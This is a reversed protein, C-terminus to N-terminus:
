APRSPLTVSRLSLTGPARAPSASVVPTTQEAIALMERPSLDHTLTNQVWYTAGGERWAVTRLQEGEYFLEYTRTGARIAQSPNSLLPPDAWSTGQVDYYRGLPGEQVVIVYSPHLRGRPDRIDYPRLTDPGSAGYPHRFRPYELAFPLGPAVSRAHAIASQETPALTPLPARGHPRTRVSRLSQGLRYKPIPATGSLFSRVSGSIQQPTATDFTQLLTAQFPVQRVPKGQSEILLALLDLVQ